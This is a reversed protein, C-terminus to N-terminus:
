LVCCCTLRTNVCLSICWVAPIIFVFEGYVELISADGEVHGVLILNDKSNIMDDEKESDDENRGLTVYPDACNSSYVALNGIGLVADPKIEEEDYQDFNYEDSADGVPNEDTGKNDSDEDEEVTRQVLVSGDVEDRILYVCWM